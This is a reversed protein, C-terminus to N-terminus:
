LYEGHIKRMVECIEGLTCNNKICKIIIPLLNDNNNLSAELKRLSIVVNDQNRDSKFKQLRQLQDDIAEKDITQIPITTNEVDEYKNLGVIIQEKNEIAKQYEFATNSIQNQQFNNEIALIAGGLDDINKILELTKSEISQTLSEVYYSGALPDVVDVM